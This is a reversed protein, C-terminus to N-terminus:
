QAFFRPGSEAIISMRLAYARGPALPMRSDYPMGLSVIEGTKILGVAELVKQATMLNGNGRQDEPGWRSKFWEDSLVPSVGMRTKNNEGM